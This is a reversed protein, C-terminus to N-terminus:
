PGPVRICSPIGHCENTASAAPVLAAALALMAVLAALAARM